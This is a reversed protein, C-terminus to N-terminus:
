RLEGPTQPPFQPSQRRATAAAPTDGARQITLQGFPGAVSVPQCQARQAAGVLAWPSLVAADASQIAFTCRARDVQIKGVGPVRYLHDAITREDDDGRLEVVDLSYSGPALRSESPLQELRTLKYTAVSTVIQSPGGEGKEVAQWIRELTLKPSTKGTVTLLRKPVDAQVSTIGPLAYLQAAAKQACGNCCIDDAVLQVRFAGPPSAAM